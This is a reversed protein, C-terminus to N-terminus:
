EVGGHNKPNFEFIEIGKINENTDYDIVYYCFKEKLDNFEDSVDYKFGNDWWLAVIRYEPEYSYKINKETLSPFNKINSELYSILNLLIKDPLISESNLTEFTPM